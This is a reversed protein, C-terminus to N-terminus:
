VLTRQTVAALYTQSTDRTRKPRSSAPAYLYREALQSVIYVRRASDPFRLPPFRTPFRLHPVRRVPTPFVHRPIPLYSYPIHLVSACFPPLSTSLRPTCYEVHLPPRGARGTTATKLTLSAHLPTTM